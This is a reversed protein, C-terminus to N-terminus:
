QQITELYYALSLLRGRVIAEGGFVGASEGVRKSFFAGWVPMESGHGRMGTRGDIIHIVDLMPFKGDHRQALGTLDPVDVTLFKAVDGAGKGDAGHCSACASMFEQRGLDEESVAGGAGLALVAAGIICLLRITRRM